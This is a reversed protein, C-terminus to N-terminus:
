KFAGNLSELNYMCNTDPRKKSLNISSSTLRDYCLSQQIYVRLEDHNSIYKGLHFDKVAPCKVSHRSHNGLCYSYKMKVGLKRKNIMEFSVVRVSLFSQAFM